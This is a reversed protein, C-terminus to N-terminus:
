IQLPKKQRPTSTRPPTPTNPSSILLLSLVLLEKKKKGGQSVSLKLCPRELSLPSRLLLFMRQPSVNLQNIQPNSLPISISLSIFSNTKTIKKNYLTKMHTLINTCVPGDETTSKCLHTQHIKTNENDM